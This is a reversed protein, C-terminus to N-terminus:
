RLTLLKIIRLILHLFCGKTWDQYSPSRQVRRAQLFYDNYNAIIMIILAIIAEWIVQQWKEALHLTMIPHDSTVTIFSHSCLLVNDVLRESYWPIYAVCFSINKKNFYPNFTEQLILKRFFLNGSSLNVTRVFWNLQESIKEDWGAYCNLQKWYGCSVQWCNSWLIDIMSNNGRQMLTNMKSPLFLNIWPIKTEYNYSHIYSDSDHITREYEYLDRPHNPVVRGFSPVRPHNAVWLKWGLELVRSQVKRKQIPLFHLFSNSTWDM